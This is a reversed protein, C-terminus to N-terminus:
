PMCAYPPISIRIHRERERCGDEYTNRASRMRNSAACFAAFSRWERREGAAHPESTEEEEEECIQSQSIVVSPPPSNKPEPAPIELDPHIASSEIQGIHGLGERHSSHNRNRVIERALQFINKDNM